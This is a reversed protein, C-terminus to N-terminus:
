LIVFSNNDQNYNVIIVATLTNDKISCFYSLWNIFNIIMYGIQPNPM